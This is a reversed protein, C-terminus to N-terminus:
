LAPKARPFATLVNRENATQCDICFHAAPMHRLRDLAITEGCNECVGYVGRDIRDLAQRISILERQHSNALSLFYDASTDIVSVDADDGPSELVQENLNARAITERPVIENMRSILIQALEPYHDKLEERTTPSRDVPPEIRVPRSSSM